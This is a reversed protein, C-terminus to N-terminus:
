LCRTRFDFLLRPGRTKEGTYSPEQALAEHPRRASADEVWTAASSLRVAAAAEARDSTASLSRSKKVHALGLAFPLPLACRSRRVAQGPPPQTAGVAAPPSPAPMRESESQLLKETLCTNPGVSRYMLMGSASARLANCHAHSASAVTHSTSFMKSHFPYQSQIDSTITEFSQMGLCPLMGKFGCELGALGFKLCGRLAARLSLRRLVAAPTGELLNHLALSPPSSTLLEELTKRYNRYTGTQINQSPQSIDPSPNMAPM